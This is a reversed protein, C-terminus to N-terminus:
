RWAGRGPQRGHAPLHGGTASRRTPPSPEAGADELGVPAAGRASRIEELFRERQEDTPAWPYDPAWLRKAYTGIM